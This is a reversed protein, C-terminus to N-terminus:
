MSRCLCIQAEKGQVDKGQFNKWQTARRFHQDVFDIQDPRRRVILSIM